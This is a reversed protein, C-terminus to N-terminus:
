RTNYYDVVICIECCIEAAFDVFKFSPMNTVNNM